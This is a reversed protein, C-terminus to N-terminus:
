CVILAVELYSRTRAVVYCPVGPGNVLTKIDCAVFILHGLVACDSTLMGLRPDSRGDANEGLPTLVGDGIGARQALLPIACWNGTGSANAGRVGIGRTGLRM